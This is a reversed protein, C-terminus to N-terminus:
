KDDNGGKFECRVCIEAAREEGTADQGASLNSTECGQVTGASEGAGAGSSDAPLRCKRM